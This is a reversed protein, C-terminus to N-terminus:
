LTKTFTTKVMKEKKWKFLSFWLVCWYCCYFDNIIKNQLTLAVISWRDVSYDPWFQCSVSCIWPNGSVKDRGKSVRQSFNWNKLIQYDNPGVNINGFPFFVSLIFSSLNTTSFIGTTAFKWTKLIANVVGQFHLYDSLFLSSKSHM